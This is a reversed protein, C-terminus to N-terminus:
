GPIMYPNNQPTLLGFVIELPPLILTIWPEWQHPETLIVIPYNGIDADTPKGLFNMYMLGSRCQLPTAYGDLFTIVQRGGVHVSKDDCHNHFWEIQGPSSDYKRQWYTNM